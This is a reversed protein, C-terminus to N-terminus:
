KEGALLRSCEEAVSSYGISEALAMARRLSLEAEEARGAAIRLKGSLMLVDAQEAVYGDKFMELAREFSEEAASWRGELMSLEGRSKALYGKCVRAEKFDHADILRLGKELLQRGEEIRGVYGTVYGLNNYSTVVGFWYSISEFISRATEFDRLAEENRGLRHLIMGRNSLAAGAGRNDRGPNAGIAKEIYKLASHYQTSKYFIHCLIVYRVHLFPLEDVWERVIEMWDERRVPDLHSGVMPSYAHQMLVDADVTVRYGRFGHLPHSSATGGLPTIVADQVRAVTPDHDVLLVNTPKEELALLTPTVDLVDSCSYGWVVINPSPGSFVDRILRQRARFGHGSAISRLTSRISEKRDASGHLKVIPLVGHPVDHLHLGTDVELLVRYPVRPPADLARELLLDFNTTCITTLVGERALRSMLLHNHCPTGLLFVDFLKTTGQDHEIFADMFGEFPMCWKGVDTKLKRLDGREIGLTVLIAELLPSAAPLGSGISIGAGCLITLSGRKGRLVQVIEDITTSM